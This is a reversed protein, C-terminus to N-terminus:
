VIFADAFGAAKAKALAAEANERKAYAGIQVRFLAPRPPHSPGGSVLKRVDARFGDMTRGHRPFWHMVDAHNSAIGLARGESHCILAPPEPQFGYQACLKAALEAAAQYVRGFYAPDTLGDECIEVGIHTDNAGGGAHWGRVDWPLTQYATVRGAADNGIFAHVCAQRGGCAACLGKGDNRFAHPPADRGGPHFVNWHNGNPNHGLRGDDPGVYRSLRPNDAGTSHLMLGAPRIKRGAIYCANKTLMQAYLAM